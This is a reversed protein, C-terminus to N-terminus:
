PKTKVPLARSLLTTLVKMPTAVPMVVAPAVVELTAHQDGALGAVVVDPRARAECFVFTIEPLTPDPTVKVEFVVPLLTILFLM